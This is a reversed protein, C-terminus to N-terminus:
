KNEYTKNSKLKSGLFESTVERERERERERAREKVREREM